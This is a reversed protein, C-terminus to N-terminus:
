HLCLGKGLLKYQQIADLAALAATLVVPTLCILAIGGGFDIFMACTM